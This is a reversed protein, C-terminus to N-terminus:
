IRDGLRADRHIHHSRETTGSRAYVHLMAPSSWGMIRMLAAGDLGEKLWRHALTHRFQHPHIHSLGAQRCRNDIVYTVGSNTMGGHTSIFFRDTSEARPHRSRAKLYARLSAYTKTGFPVQRIKRGKGKVTVIRSEFDVNDLKLTSLEERRLGCDILVRIMATDRVSAFKARAPGDKGNRCAAVIKSLERDPIIPVPQEAIVPRRVSRMMDDECLEEEIAWKFFARLGTRLHIIYAASLGRNTKVDEYNNGGRAQVTHLHAFFSQIIRRSLEEHSNESAWEHLLKVSYKYSDATSVSRGEAICANWFDEGHEPLESVKM